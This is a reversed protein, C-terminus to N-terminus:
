RFRVFSSSKNSARNRRYKKEDNCKELGGDPSYGLYTIVIYFDVTSLHVLLVPCFGIGDDVFYQVRGLM